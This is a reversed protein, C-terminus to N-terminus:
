KREQGRTELIVVGRILRRLGDHAAPDVSMGERDFFGSRVIYGVNRDRRHHGICQSTVEDNRDRETQKLGRNLRKDIKEMLPNPLRDSLLLLM